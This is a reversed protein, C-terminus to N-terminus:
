VRVVKEVQDQLDRFVDVYRNFIQEYVSFDKIYYEGRLSCDTWLTEVNGTCYIIKNTPDQLFLATLDDIDKITLASYERLLPGYIIESFWARDLIFSDKRNILEIYMTKMTELEEITKPYSMHIIPIKEKLSLDKALTSKGSGDPGEIIIKMKYNVEM